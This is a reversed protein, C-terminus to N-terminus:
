SCPVDNQGSDWCSKLGGNLGPAIIYGEGSAVDWFIEVTNGMSADTWTVFRTSGDHEATLADGVNEGGTVTITVGHVDASEHTWDVRVVENSGSPNSPDYFRWTGSTGDTHSNGGYWLFDTLPPDANPATIRMDWVVQNGDVSGSLHATWLQGGSSATYRWHWRGDDEFSPTNNAAAGFVAVPVALHLVTVAHAVLVSLAAAGFHLQSSSFAAGLEAPDAYASLMSESGSLQFLGFDVDMSTAAPLAPPTGPGDVVQTGGDTSCGALAVFGALTLAHWIRSDTLKAALQTM